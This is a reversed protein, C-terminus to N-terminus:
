PRKFSVPALVVEIDQSRLAVVFDPPAKDDTVLCHIENL